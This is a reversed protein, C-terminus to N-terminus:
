RAYQQLAQMRAKAKEEYQSGSFKEVLDKYAQYAKQLQGSRTPDNPKKPDAQEPLTAAQKELLQGGLWLGDISAARVGGYFVSVRIYQDIAAPIDGQTEQIKAVLLTSNARLEPTATPARIIPILLDIAEDYKKEQFRSQAIGYNAELLKPSWAYHKKLKDFMAGAEAVKNQAQLTSGLGYLSIAQAEQVAYSAQEPAVGTPIPYDNALKTYVAAAEDVKGSQLLSAGYLDMDAPAYVFQANYAEAMQTLAKAKDKEYTFSALTFLIKSKAEAKDNFKGAFSQFYQTVDADTKLKAAVLFKQDSLLAKLALAAEPSTPYKEVLKEAAAVSNTIGKNWEAREEENLAAYAGQSDAYRNWLEAVHRLAAPAQLNDPHKEAMELYSAAAEQPKGGNIKMQGITDYAYFLMESEPYHAIFDKLVAVVEDTKQETSLISARQFYSYPAAKSKPFEEAVKKFLELAKAKDSHAALQALSFRVTSLLESKPYNKTFTDFEKQATAFDNTQMAIQGAWFAAQEGQQTKPYTDRVKRFATIAEPIQNKAQYVLAIGFEAQAALEAKPHTALFDNYTKLAEDFKNLRVMATAQQVLTEAVFRGNPYLQMGEQFYSVAKAADVPEALFLTGVVLPLNDALSDGKYAAQFADYAKVASERLNQSAYTLTIYYLISKKQADTEAIKEMQRLILRAADYEKQQFFIQGVKIRAAITLDGKTKIAELKSREGDEFRDLRKFTAVDRARGADLKRQRINTIRAQQAKLMPGKPYVSRYATIAREWCGARQAEPGLMGRNYLLEGIQFQADNLLAIDQHKDIIDQLLKEAEDCRTAATADNANAQLELSGQTALVLALLYQSDLISESRPFHYLNSRLGAAADDYRKLQFSCLARGYVVSEVQESKPYKKLFVDYNKIADELAATKASGELKSAKGAMAQPLLSYGLERLDASAPPELILRFYEISKDFHGQLYHLFGLRFQAEPIIVSTPYDKLIKDYASVAEDYREANFLELAATNAQESASVPAAPLSHPILATTSLITALTLRAPLHRLKM